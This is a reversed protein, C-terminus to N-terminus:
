WKLMSKSQFQKIKIFFILERNDLGWWNLGCLGRTNLTDGEGPLRWVRGWLLLLTLLLLFICGLVPVGPTDVACPSPHLFLLIPM